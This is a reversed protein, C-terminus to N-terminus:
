QASDSAGATGSNLAAIIGDLTDFINVDTGAGAPTPELKFVFGDDHTGLHLALGQGTLDLTNSAADYTAATVVPDGSGDLMPSGDAALHRVLYTGGTFEVEFTTDAVLRSADTFQPTGMIPAVLPGPVTTPRAT